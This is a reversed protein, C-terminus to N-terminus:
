AAANDGAGICSPWRVDLQAPQTQGIDVEDPLQGVDEALAGAGADHQEVGLCGVGDVAVQWHPSQVRM